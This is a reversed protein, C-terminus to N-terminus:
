RSSRPCRSQRPGTRRRTARRGGRPTRRRTASCADAAIKFTYRGSRLRSLSARGPSALTIRPKTADPRPPTGPDAPPPPPIVPSGPDPTDPRVRTIQVLSPLPEAIPGGATKSSRPWYSTWNEEEPPRPPTRAPTSSTSSCRRSTRRSTRGPARRTSRCTPSASRSAPTRARDAPGHLGRQQRPVRLPARATSRRQVLHGHRGLREGGLRVRPQRALLLGARGRRRPRDPRGGRLGGLHLARAGVAEPRQRGRRVRRVSGHRTTSASNNTLAIFVSATRTSRSTRPATPRSTRRHVGTAGVARPHTRQTDVLEAEAVEVWHGTGERGHDARARPTAFPPPGGAGLARHLAHGGRPDPPQQRPRGPRLARDSVFKYVGGNAIDDGMYLVFPKGPADRFATNEHRFRGLATHKRPPASTDYPDHEVVWGYKAPGGPGGAGAPSGTTTGDGNEYDTTGLKADSWGYGFGTTLPTTRTTRRAPCRPAGPRSAAPATRSRATAVDRRHGPLGPQGRAPRHVAAVPSEGTIRRNYKSPRSSRSSRRGQQAQHAAGLQRRGAAGGRDGGRDEHGPEDPGLLFYPAPYEHNVFLLGEDSNDSGFPLPFFAIFDNNYGFTLTNGQDDEFTDGYSILVDARFGEPVEFADAPSAAIANFSSFDNPTAALAADTELNLFGTRELAVAAATSAGAAAIGRIFARRTPQQREATAAEPSEPLSTPEM